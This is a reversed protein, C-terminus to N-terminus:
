LFELLLEFVETLFLIALKFVQRIKELKEVIDDRVVIVFFILAGFFSCCTLPSYTCL